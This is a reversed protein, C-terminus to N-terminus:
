HIPSKKSSLYTDSLASHCVEAGEKNRFINYFTTHSHDYYDGNTYKRDRYPCDSSSCTEDKDYYTHECREYNEGSAIRFKSWWFGLSGILIVPVGTEKAFRLQMAATEKIQSVSDPSSEVAQSYM